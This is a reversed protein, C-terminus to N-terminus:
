QSWRRSAAGSISRYWLALERSGADDTGMPDMGGSLDPSEDPEQDREIREAERAARVCEAHEARAAEMADAIALARNIMADSM